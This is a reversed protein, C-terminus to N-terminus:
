CYVIVIACHAVASPVWLSWSASGKWGALDRTGPRSQSLSGKEGHDTHSHSACRSQSGSPEPLLCPADWQGGQSPPGNRHIEQPRASETEHCRGLTVVGWSANTTHHWLPQHLVWGRKNESGATWHINSRLCVVLDSGWPSEPKVGKWCSGKEFPRSNCHSIVPEVTQIVLSTPSFPQSLCEESNPFSLDFEFPCNCGYKIM